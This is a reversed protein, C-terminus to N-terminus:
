ANIVALDNGHRTATSPVQFLDSTIVREVVGGTLDPSLRVVSIQNSFNQVAWLRHGDLVIGDVNPVSVGEILTSVGTSPDVTYLSGNASHSVVLTTGNATTAIGNLNFPGSIDAAPGSVTLTSFPGPV